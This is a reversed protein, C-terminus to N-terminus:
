WCYDCLLEQPLPRHQRNMGAGTMASQHGSRSLFVVASPPLPPPHKCSGYLQSLASHRHRARNPPRAPDQSRGRSAGQPPAPGAKTESGPVPEHQRPDPVLHAHLRPAHPSHASVRHAVRSAPQRLDSPRPRREPAPTRQAIWQPSRPEPGLAARQARVPTARSISTSVLRPTQQTELM